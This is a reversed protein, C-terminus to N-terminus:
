GLVHHSARDYVSNRTSMREQAEMEIGFHAPGIPVSCMVRGCHQILGPVDGECCHVM